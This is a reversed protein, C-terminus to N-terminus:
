AAEVDYGKIQEKLDKGLAAIRKAAVKHGDGKAEDAAGAIAEAVLKGIAKKTLATAKAVAAATKEEPTKAM